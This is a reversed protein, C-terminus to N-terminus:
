PRPFHQGRLLFLSRRRGPYGIVYLRGIGDDDVAHPPLPRRSVSSIPEIHSPLAQSPRLVTIDHSDQDSEWLVEAFGVRAQTEDTHMGERLDPCVFVAECYEAMQSTKNPRTSIVHNNTVIVPDAGWEPRLLDGRMAFGTAFPTDRGGMQAHIRCIARARQIAHQIVQLAVPANTSFIQEFGKPNDQGGGDKLEREILFTERTSMRVQAAQPADKSTHGNKNLKSVMIAKLLRVPAGREADDGSIQWVEELQRLSANLQFLSVDPSLAFTAYAKAADAYQGLAILAEGQTGWSWVTTPQSVAALVQRALGQASPDDPSVRDRIARFALALANVGYYANAETQSHEWVRLYASFAREIFVARVAPEDLRKGMAGDVYMQKYIRGMASLGDEGERTAPGKAALPAALELARDFVGLEILAQIEWRQIDLDTMGASRMENTLVYLDDFVRNARLQAAFRKLTDFGRAGLVKAQTVLNLIPGLSQGSDFKALTPLLAAAEADLRQLEIDDTPPVAPEPLPMDM